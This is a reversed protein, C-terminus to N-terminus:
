KRVTEPMLVGEIKRYDPEDKLSIFEITLDDVYFKYLASPNFFYIKAVGNPPLDGPVYFAAEIPTWKDAGAYKDLIFQNYSLSKGKSQYDVVLTAETTEKPSLIWARVLIIRNGTKFLPGLTDELGVSYPAKRDTKSSWRGQHFVTDNRTGSNMWSHGQDTEMDNKMSTRGAISEDPIYVRAKQTLSFFSGRYIAGTINYPPFIWKAHQYFQVLNLSILLVLIASFLRKRTGTKLYNFLFLLLLAVVVYIDIFVRQGCKSAYYWVWWCSVVYIFLLLFGALWYFRFRNQRYLWAFGLISVLAVPTYVFWGRNFSFLINLMHPHLFNLKEDGYTYVIPKGTQLYWLVIPVALLLLAQIAGRILTRRDALVQGSVRSLIKRDGAIFPVLMLILMNTPRILFILTALLLSKVFWKPQYDHFLKFTTLVFGTILAFSYVHTMSPEVVTFFILNTGLTVAVTIFAATRDNSGFRRILQQLWRAGLWLFLLASLAISYQYPLSYGDRPFMELWAMLHGFLFFPLWLIAMGPFYKNVKRDGADNRFEKFVSRNAPYYQAEYQEVFRFQFDSYIFVAPLYAYYGKGDSNIVRDWNREPSKFGLFILIYIVLIIEPTYKYLYKM